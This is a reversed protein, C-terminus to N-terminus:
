PDQRPTLPAPADYLCLADCHKRPKTTLGDVPIEREWFHTRRLTEPARKRDSYAISAHAANALRDEPKALYQPTAGVNM